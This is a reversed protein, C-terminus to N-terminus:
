SMFYWVIITLLSFLWCCQRKGGGNFLGIYPRNQPEKYNNSSTVHTRLPSYTILSPLHHNVQSRRDVDAESYEYLIMTREDRGLANSAVCRYKGYDSPELDYIRLSLVLRSNGEDYAELRYRGQSNIRRGDKEWYNIAQPYATILCELITERGVVQGLRRNPLLIEPAFEVTVRMQRSVSPPVGNSAVCEYIDDCYRSVNQIIIMEGNMGIIERESSKSGSAPRRYWTVDPKPIGTVNCVLVVTEGEQVTMDNSSLEDIITAPVKVHLMVKKSKVPNTNITCRYPGHDQWKIDRIQLNWEKVYPRVVSFRFDDVVRRDEYTLPISKSDLWAVKYKGLYDISCPLVATQGAVVTVNVIPVDFTPELGSVSDDDYENDEYADNYDYGTDGETQASHLTAQYLFGCIIVVTKFYDVNTIKM